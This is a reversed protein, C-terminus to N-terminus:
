IRVALFKSAFRRSGFISAGSKEFTNQGDDFELVDSVFDQKTYDPQCLIALLSFEAVKTSGANM